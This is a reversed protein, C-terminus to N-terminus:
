SEQEDINDAEVPFPTKKEPKNADVISAHASAIRCIYDLLNKNDIGKILNMWKKKDAPSVSEDASENMDEMKSENETEAKM